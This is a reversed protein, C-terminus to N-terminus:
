LLRLLKPTQPAQETKRTLEAAVKTQLYAINVCVEYEELAAFVLEYFHLNVSLNELDNRLAFHLLRNVHEQNTEHIPFLSYSFIGSCVQDLLSCLTELYQVNYKHQIGNEFFLHLLKMKAFNLKDEEQQYLPIITQALYERDELLKRYDQITM